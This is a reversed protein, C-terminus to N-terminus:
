DLAPGCLALVLLGAGLVPVGRGPPLAFRGFVWGGLLGAFFFLDFPAFFIAAYHYSFWDFARTPACLLFGHMSAPRWCWFVALVWFVLIARGIFPLLCLGFMVYFAVEYRLSWAPPVLEQTAVPLLSALRFALGPTLAGFVYYAVIGLSLWYVPYLRCARRWWYRPLAALRGFDRQHATMMVFGSLVFFYQVAIPTPPHIAGLITENPRLGYRPVDGLVHTLVVLSAAIFRGFELSALIPTAPKPPM